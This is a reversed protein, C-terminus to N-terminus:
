KNSEEVKQQVTEVLRQAIFSHSEIFRQACYGICAADTKKLTKDFSGICKDFCTSTIHSTMEYAARLQELREESIKQEQM